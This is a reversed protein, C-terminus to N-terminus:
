GPGIGPVREALADLSAFDGGRAREAAIARARVPGLGPVRELEAEGAANLPAPLGLAARVEGPMDSCACAPAGSAGGTELRCSAGARVLGLGEPAAPARAGVWGVLAIGILVVARAAHLEPVRPGM